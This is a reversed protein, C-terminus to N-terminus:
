PWVRLKQRKYVRRHENRRRRSNVKLADRDKPINNNAINIQGFSSFIFFLWIAVWAKHLFVGGFITKTKSFSSFVQLPRFLSQQETNNCLPPPAPAAAFHHCCACIRREFPACYGLHPTNRIATNAKRTSFKHGCVM